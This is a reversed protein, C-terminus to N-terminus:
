FCSDMWIGQQIKDFLAKRSAPSNEALYQSYAQAEYRAQAATMGNLDVDERYQRGADCAEKMAQDHTWKKKASPSASATEAVDSKVGPTKCGMLKEMQEKTGVGRTPLVGGTKCFIEREKDTVKTDSEKGKTKSDQPKKKPALQTAEGGSTRALIDTFDKQSIEMYNRIFGIAKSPEVRKLFTRNEIAGAMAQFRANGYGKEGTAQLYLNNLGAVLGWMAMERETLSLELTKNNKRLGETYQTWSCGLVTRLPLTENVKCSEEKVGGQTGDRDTTEVDRKFEKLAKNEKELNKIKDAETNACGCGIMALVIASLIATQRKM